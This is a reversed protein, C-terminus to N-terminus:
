GKPRILKQGENVVDMVGGGLNLDLMLMLDTLDAYQVFMGLKRNAEIQEAIKHRDIAWEESFASSSNARRSTPTLRVFEFGKFAALRRNMAHSLVLDRLEADPYARQYAPRYCGYGRHAWVQLPQYLMAAGPSEWIPLAPDIPPPAHARVLFARRSGNGSLTRIIAGVYTEIAAEDVAAIPVRLCEPIGYRRVRESAVLDLM